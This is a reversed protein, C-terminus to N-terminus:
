PPCRLPHRTRSESGKMIYDIARDSIAADSPKIDMFPKNGIGMSVMEQMRLERNRLAQRWLIKGIISTWAAKVEGSSAQLIFTDQSKRRRFWIEFRLGSDGVNETM